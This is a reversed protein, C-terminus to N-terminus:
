HDSRRWSCEVQPSPLVVRLLEWSPSFVGFGVGASRHSRWITAQLDKKREEYELLIEEPRDISECGGWWRWMKEGKDMFCCSSVVLKLFEWLSRVLNDEAIALQLFIRGVDRCHGVPWACCSSLFTCCKNWILLFKNGHEGLSVFLSHSVCLCLSPSLPLHVELM